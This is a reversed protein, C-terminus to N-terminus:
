AGSNEKMYEADYYGFPSEHVHLSPDVGVLKWGIDNKNGGHKSMGFFGCLTMFRMLGFFPTNEQTKMHADQAANDLESFLASGALSDQFAALGNRAFPLSNANYTGFTQDFFWIVGAERAGPTATTPLIRAAIAEFELAESASLITFARAEEKASCAAQALAALGPASFRLWSGGGIAVGNQLFQRRSTKEATM